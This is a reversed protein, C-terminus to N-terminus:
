EKVFRKAAAHGYADTLHLMYIGAAYKTLDLQTQSAFSGAGMKQGTANYVQYTYDGNHAVEINLVSGAPNPYLALSYALSTEAIGVGTYVFEPSLTFCLNNYSVGFHYTGNATAVYTNSNAGAIPDGEVYWQYVVGVPGATTATLTTGSANITPMPLTIVTLDLEVISDCGNVDTFNFIYIDTLTLAQGDVFLTDGDCITITQPYVQPVTPCSFPQYAVPGTNFQCTNFTFNNNYNVVLVGYYIGAAPPTFSMSTAVLNTLAADSYWEVFSSAGTPLAPQINIVTIENGQQTATFTYDPTIRVYLTNTTDAGCGNSLVSYYNGEQPTATYYVEANANPLPTGNLYWQYDINNGDVYEGIISLTEGPCITLTDTFVTGALNYVGYIVDAVWPQICPQHQYNIFRTCGFQNQVIVLYDGFPTSAYTQSSNVVTLSADYWQFTYTYNPNISSINATLDGGSETITFTFDEFLAVIFTDSVVTDCSNYAEFWYKGALPANGGYSNLGIGTSASILGATEHYYGFTITPDNGPDIGVSTACTVFPTECTTCVNIVENAQWSQNSLVPAPCGGGISGTFLNNIETATLARSWFGLEDMAGSYSTSPITGDFAGIRTYVSGSLDGAITANPTAITAVEVGNIYLVFVDDITNWTLAVHTWQNVPFSTTSSSGAGYFTSNGLNDTLNVGAELHASTGDFVIRISAPQCGQSTCLGDNRIDVLYPTYTGSTYSASYGEFKFWTAVTFSTNSYLLSVFDFLNGEGSFQFASNPNGNRDNAYNSTVLFSNFSHSLNFESFSNLSNTPVYAPQSWALMTSALFALTFLLKHTM